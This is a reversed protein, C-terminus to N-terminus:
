GNRQRRRRGCCGLGLLAMVALILTSPEPIVSSIVMGSLVFNRDGDRQAGDAFFQGVRVNLVGDTVDITQEFLTYVTVDDVPFTVGDWIGHSTVEDVSLVGEVEIDWLRTETANGAWFMQLTIPGNPVEFNYTSAPNCCDITNLVADMAAADPGSTNSNPSWSGLRNVPGDTMGAPPAPKNTVFSVGDITQATGANNIAYLVNGPVLNLDTHSPVRTVTGHTITTLMAADGSSCSLVALLGASLLLPFSFFRSNM